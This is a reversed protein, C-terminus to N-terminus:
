PTETELIHRSTMVGAILDIYTAYSDLDRSILMRYVYGAAIGAVQQNVMLSQLDALTDIACTQGQPEAANKILEPHQVSPLPLGTCGLPGLEPEDFDYRNGLLVQGDAHHNGCDLWWLRGSWGKVVDEIHLRAEPTDVAGIVLHLWNDRYRHKQEIHDPM